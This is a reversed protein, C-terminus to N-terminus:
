VLKEIAKHYESWQGVDIWSADDIPYVGVQKKKRKADQILDTMNYNKNRPILNILNPNLVYLGVNVFFDFKPKEIIKKLYGTKTLKCTGYPIIHEKSSVVLTIDNDNSIHFNMLDDFNIKIITDCNTVLFPKKIKGRLLSLGGATGLPKPEDVFSLKFGPKMEQFFAKLIKSKYNLTIFFNSVKNEIFREIIHEIVPKENIPVLPKPLVNTFPELRAGKGGAMIVVDYYASKDPLKIQFKKSYNNTDNEKFFNEFTLIDIVKKSKKVIPIVDIRKKAFINKAQSLSYDGAILFTPKTQYYKNIKDKNYKGKLIAKRVDGDSLTGLLKNEKDVVVLCKEGVKTLKKLADKISLNLKILLDKM